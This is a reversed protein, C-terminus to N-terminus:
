AYCGTHPLPTQGTVMEEASLRLVNRATAHRIKGIVRKM